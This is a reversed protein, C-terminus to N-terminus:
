ALELAARLAAPGSEELRRTTEPLCQERLGLRAKHVEAARTDADTAQGSDEDRQVDELVEPYHFFRSKAMAQAVVNVAVSYDASSSDRM